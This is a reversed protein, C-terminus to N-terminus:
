RRLTREILDRVDAPLQQEGATVDIGDPGTVQYVYRDPQPEAAQLEGLVPSALLSLWADREPSALARVDIEREVRLGAFGGSRRVVVRARTEGAPDADTEEGAPVGAVAPEVGVRQWADAVARASSAAFLRGAAEITAAAFGAFDTSPALSGGTLVDYWIRGPGDWANGGIATAALYFAHNPIGSNIHVGGNDDTTEVYDAMTAPQPDKGLTPDDYATGPAKMSRLAEGRVADTFLGAGILWDATAADQGLSRQKVLSGFVDSVSENLAGSQGQYVLGATLETLGHTLEHGIVDVAVTFRQFTVGDGDGFVMREGNWFANDYGAGYHVTADLPLGGGDLSDRGYVEQYLRWTAGLGDYAEDAAPDGVPGAGEGRVVDGPLDTSSGADSITRTPGLAAPAAAPRTATDAATAALGDPRGASGAASRGSRTARIRGDMRLSIQAAAAQEGECHGALHEILHPPVIGQCIPGQRDRGQRDREPRDREQRDREQRDREPRDREQRDRELRDIRPRDSRTM